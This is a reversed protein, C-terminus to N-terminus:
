SLSRSGDAGEGRGGCDDDVAGLVKPEHLRLADGSERRQLPAAHRALHQIEGALVVVAQVRLVADDPVLGHHPPDLRPSLSSFSTTRAVSSLLRRLLIINEASTTHPPPSPTRLGLRFGNAQQVHVHTSAPDQIIPSIVTVYSRCMGCFVFYFFSFSFIFFVSLGLSPHSSPM